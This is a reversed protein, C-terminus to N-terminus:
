APVAVSSTALVMMLQSTSVAIGLLTVFDGTALDGSPMIDGASTKDVYYREGVTLTAGLNILGSKQMVARQGDAGGGLMIGVVDDTGAADSQAAKHDGNDSLDSYVPMGATVTGGLKITEPIADDGAIVNAATQTLAVYWCRRKLLSIGAEADRRRVTRIRGSAYNNNGFM